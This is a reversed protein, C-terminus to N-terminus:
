KVEPCQREREASLEELMTRIRAEILPMITDERLKGERSPSVPIPEGVQVVATLPSYVRCVDTLDEEFREVTELM